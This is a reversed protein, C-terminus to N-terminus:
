HAPSGPTVSATALRAPYPVPYPWDALFQPSIPRSLLYGQITDCNMQTLAALSLEDEVGEAVVTLRLTHSLDIITRVIAAADPSRTMDIVFSKDIKVEHVPLQTLYALSSYGTGFDDVSIRLGLAQLEYLTVLAGWFDSMVSTETIELTLLAPDVETEALLRTVTATLTPELLGRASLNVAVGVGPHDPLWSRCKRLAQGLVESTLPGILGVREAIPVFEDPSLLGRVPHQWRVLAEFSVITGTSLEMKPQYYVVLQGTEIARRLEGALALRTVSNRDDDSSYRAVGVATRKAAYMAIDAHQLLTPAHRGDDPVLAVGVSASVELFIGAIEFAETLSGAIRAATETATAPEFGSRLLVAFEDGGLRAVVADAPIAARLRAGVQCLLLDGVHHGLTDNVERFRNLDLLMIAGQAAQAGQALADPQHTALLEQVHLLFLERNPLGTLNDHNADHRLRELLRGNSRLAGAHATLTQLLRLDQPTFTSMAGIRNGVQLVGVTQEGEHLPVLLADKLGARDLWSRLLPDRTGRPIVIASTPLQEERVTSGPIASAPPVLLVAQEAQMLDTAETLLRALMDDSTETAGVPQTFAFLQGLDAHQRQLGHYARYGALVTAVLVAMLLLAARNVDLVLLGLLALTTNLVGALASVPLTRTLETAAMRHRRLAMAATVATMGMLGVLLMTLYAVAWDSARLGQGPHLVQFLSEAAAVEAAFLGLNFISKPLADRRLWFVAAAAALRSLLLWWPPLLFLGLVFPLESLSVSWAQRRVEVHIQSSEAAAFLLSLMVAVLVADATRGHVRAPGLALVATAACGLVCGFVSV